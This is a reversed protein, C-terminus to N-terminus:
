SLLEEIKGSLWRDSPGVARVRGGACCSLATARSRWHNARIRTKARVVLCWRNLERISQVKRSPARAIGGAAM